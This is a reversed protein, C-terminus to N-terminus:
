EESLHQRLANRVFASRSLSAEAALRDLIVLRAEDIYLTTAVMGDPDRAPQRPPALRDTPEPRTSESPLQPHHDVAELVLQSHTVRERQATAALRRRVDVPLTVTVRRQKGEPAPNDSPEPNTDSSHPNGPPATAPVHPPPLADGRGPPQASAHRRHPDLASVDRRSM